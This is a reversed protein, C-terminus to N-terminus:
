TAGQPIVSLILSLFLSHITRNGGEDKMGGFADSRGGTASKSVPGPKSLKKAAALAKQAFKNGGPPPWNLATSGTALSRRSPSSTM